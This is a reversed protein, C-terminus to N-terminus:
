DFNTYQGINHLYSEFDTIYSRFEDDGQIDNSMRERCYITDAVKATTTAAAATDAIAVTVSRQRSRHRTVEGIGRDPYTM